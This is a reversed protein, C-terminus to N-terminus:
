RTTKQSRPFHRSKKAGAASKHARVSSGDISFLEWDIQGEAEFDAQLASLIRQWLGQQSWLRFREYVTKWPGFREPLDRWPVGTKLVWIMGDVILRHDKWQTGPKGNEPLFEKIRNWQEDTLAHRKMICWGQQLMM